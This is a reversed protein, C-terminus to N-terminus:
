GNRDIFQRGIESGTSLAVELQEYSHDDDSIAPLWERNPQQIEVVVTWHSNGDIREALVHIHHGKYEESDSRRESM